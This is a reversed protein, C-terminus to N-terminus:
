RSMNMRRNNTNDIDLKEKLDRIVENEREDIKQLFIKIHDKKSLLQPTNLINLM